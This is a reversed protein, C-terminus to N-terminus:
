NIANQLIQFRSQGRADFACLEGDIIRSGKIKQHPGAHSRMVM